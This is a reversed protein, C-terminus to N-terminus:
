PTLYINLIFSILLSHPCFLTHHYSSTAFIRSHSFHNSFLFHTFPSYSSCTNLSIYSIYPLSPSLQLLQTFKLPPKLSHQVYLSCHYMLYPPYFVVSLISIPSFQLIVIIYYFSILSPHILLSLM